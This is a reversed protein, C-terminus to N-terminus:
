PGRTGETNLFVEDHYPKCNHKEWFETLDQKYPLPDIYGADAFGKLRLSSSPTTADCLDEGSYCTYLYRVSTDTYYSDDAIGYPANPYTSLDCNKPPDCSIVFVFIILYIISRM